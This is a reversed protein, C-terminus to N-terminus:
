VADSGLAAAALGDILEALRFDLATLGGLSHTSLRVTVMDYRIDVDPHHEMREAPAVLAQVFAVAEPFGAFRFERRIEAGVQRWGRRDGLRRSIEQPGLLREDM